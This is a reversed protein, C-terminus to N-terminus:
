ARQEMSQCDMGSWRPPRAILVSVSRGEALAALILGKVRASTRQQEHGYIYHGLRTRLGFRTLGVYHVIADVAFAYVGADTPAQATFAFSGEGNAKCEGLLNFGADILRQIPWPETETRARTEKGGSRGRVARSKVLVTRVHQYGIGLFQAIETRSFGAEDLARIKDSKTGLGQIIKQPLLRM